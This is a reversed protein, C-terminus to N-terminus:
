YICGNHDANVRQLLPSLSQPTIHSVVHLPFVSIFKRSCIDGPLALEDKRYLHTSFSTLHETTFVTSIFLPALLSTLCPDGSCEILVGFEPMLGRSPLM